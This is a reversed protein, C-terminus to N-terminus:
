RVVLAWPDKMLMNNVCRIFDQSSFVTILGYNLKLQKLIKQDKMLAEVPKLTLHPDIAYDRVFMRYVKEVWQGRAKIMGPFDKWYRYPVNVRQECFHVLSVAQIDAGLLLVKYNKKQIFDFASGDDFAGKTDMSGIGSADKGIAAISQMPHLTRKAGPQQRVYESLIGMGSSPTVLPDFRKTRAFDFTFTPVVITGQDGIIQTVVELYQGIGFEPVGLYQIASHIFLCDGKKLGIDTLTDAFQKKTSTLMM